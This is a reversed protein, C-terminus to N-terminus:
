VAFHKIREICNDYNHNLDLEWIYLVDYGLERYVAHKIKDQKIKEAQITDKPGKYVRPNCHWYDGHVEIIKKKLLVFDAIFGRLKVQATYHIGLSNLIAEVEREIYTSVYKTLGLENAKTHIAKFTRNLDKSLSIMLGFRYNNVLYDIEEESWDSKKQYKRLEMYSLKKIVSEKTRNLIGSIEDQSLILYNERLFDEEERTWPRRSNIEKKITRIPKNNPSRLNYYTIMREVTYYPKNILLAIERATKKGYNQKLVQIEEDTWKRKIRSIVEKSKYLNLKEAKREIAGVSRNLEKALQPNSKVNYNSLLYNEEDITWRKGM